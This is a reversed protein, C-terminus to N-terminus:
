PQPPDKKKDDQFLFIYEGPRSLGFDERAHKEMYFDNRKFDELTKEINANEQRALTIQASLERSKARLARYKLYGTDGFLLASALYAVSLLLLTWFVYERKKKEARVQKWLAMNAGRM